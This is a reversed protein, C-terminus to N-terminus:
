RMGFSEMMKTALVDPAVRYGGEQMSQRALAVRDLRLDPLAALDRKLREIERSGSSIEVRDFSAVKAAPRSAKVAEAQGSEKQVAEPRTLDVIYAAGDIRM